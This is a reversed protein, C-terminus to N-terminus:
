PLFSIFWGKLRELKASSKRFGTMKASHGYSIFSSSKLIMKMQLVSPMQISRNQLPQSFNSFNFIRINNANLYGTMGEAHNRGSIYGQIIMRDYYTIADYIKDAYKDTLLM